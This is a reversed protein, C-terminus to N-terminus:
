FGAAAGVRSRPDAAGALMGDDRRVIVNAHGFLHEFAPAPQVPHGRRAIAEIWAPPADDEVLVVPGGEATWTDFGRGGGTLVWRAAGVAAGASERVLLLRALLQLLVQPQGDGGQTGLVAHLDGAPHTVLAPCLTHPPRRQPGYEAPHGPVVSFGIGRNHLNIGTAPEFLHSGFGAANSQILSVAMGDSDVVCLYTTDGERLARGLRARLAATDGAAWTAREALRDRDLLPGPDTTESLVDPRDCGAALAADVLGVSWSGAEPETGVDALEALWSGTLTLYGQSPPPVTWVDHGWVRLGLPDVWRAQPQDLDDRAFEGAGLQVLGAGFEGGYFPERGGAAIAELTRAAGPRRVRQGVSAVGAYDAAGAPLPDPLTSVSGVLLPSAPFGDAAYRAAPGLVHDLPLRGFRAHLGLWGDVCGPVTVARVDGRFPMETAGGARLRDPDAGSGSRGSADLAAPPGPGDHVLAFLDGGMGCLHPAVVALVANTAIAADVASGGDGLIALGAQTALADASAVM